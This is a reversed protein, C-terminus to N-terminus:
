PYAKLKELGIFIKSEKMCKPCQKMIPKIKIHFENDLIKIQNVEEAESYRIYNYKDDMTMDENKIMLAYSFFVENYKSKDIEQLAIFDNVTLTGILFEKEDMYIKKPLKSSDTEYTELDDLVIKRNIVGDCRVIDPQINLDDELAKLSDRLSKIEEVDTSAGIAELAEEIQKKLKGIQKNPVRQPCPINPTWGYGKVTWISSIIMLLRFDSIELKGVDIGQIVDSYINKLVKYSVSEHPTDGIYKALNESEEFFLGRVYVEDVDYSRFNSPLEDVLLYRHIRGSLNSEKKVENFKEM